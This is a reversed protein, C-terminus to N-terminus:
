GSAQKGAEPAAKPPFRNEFFSQSATAATSASPMVGKYFEDL